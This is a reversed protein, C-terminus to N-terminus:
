FGLAKTVFLVCRYIYLNYGRKFDQAKAVFWVCKQICLIYGRQFDQAQTVFLVCGWICLSCRRQNLRSSCCHMDRFVFVTRGKFAWLCQSLCIRMASHLSQVGKSLGLRPHSVVRMAFHLTQVGKSLRSHGKSFCVCRQICLSHGRQKNRCPTGQKGFPM